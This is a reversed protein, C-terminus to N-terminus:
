GERQSPGPAFTSAAHTRPCARPSSMGSCASVRLFVPAGDQDHRGQLPMFVASAPSSRRMGRRDQFPTQSRHTGWGLRMLLACWMSWCQLHALCPTRAPLLLQGLRHLWNASFELALQDLRYLLLHFGPREQWRAECWAAFHRLDSLYNRTTAPALDEEERLAHASLAMAQEGVGSLPPLAERKM